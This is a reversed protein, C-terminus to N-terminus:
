RYNLNCPTFVSYLCCRPTSNINDDGANSVAKVSEDGYEELVRRVFKPSAMAGDLQHRKTEPRTHTYVATMALGAVSLSVGALVRGTM